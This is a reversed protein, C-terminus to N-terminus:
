PAPRGLAGGDKRAATSDKRTDDGTLVQDPLVLVNVAGEDTLYRAAAAQVQAATVRTLRGPAKLQRTIGDPNTQARDAVSLWGLNSKFVSDFDELLPARARLMLDDSVPARRLAALTDNIAARAIPVDQPAVSLQIMFTGYGKWIRSPMSSVSPSYVKGLRQRLADMLQIRMLHHLMNLVQKEDPDSDDRTAWTIHILAKDAPGAHYLTRLARNSTFSRSRQDAYPRFDAERMPLAGLTGAVLRIAEAEDVDGVIAVEIAGHALRDSIDARLREFTLARFAEVPALSFRPDGDSLIAGLRAGLVGEPTARIRQFHANTSQRYLEVAEGRWGPDTIQATMVQLQLGIDGSRVQARSVFTEDEARLGLAVPHGALLSELEDRSHRGLGASPLASVLEVALPNKQTALMQGGDVNMEVLASGRTLDTHKINLRVGNAFRVMRIGLEAERRDEVVRGPTGFQTYAFAAPPPGAVVPRPAPLAAALAETVAPRLQAEVGPPATRGQFLIVPNDLPLAEAKLAALVTEPTITARQTALWDRLARPNAPLFDGEAVALATRVLAEHSRTDAGTAAAEVRGNLIALQEAVEAPAFGQELARRLETIAAQTASRWRGTIADVDLMTTRWAHLNDTTRYAADRFPADPQRAVHLLRRNIIGYGIARLLNRHRTALTDPEDQIPGTRLLTVSETLSPNLQVSVRGGDAPDIPGAKMRPPAPRAAWSAFRQRIMAEIAAPDVDGVVVLTAKAPVYHRRYFARLREATAANLTEDTGIPWRTNLRAQPYFFASAAVSARYGDSNRDRKEALVVGRENDVATPLFSLESATERMLMLATDVLGAANKPLDLHFTTNEFNTFANTDAGFALGHRELLPIMEGRGVHTSGQFAMHEIFHAYGQEGEAEDLSGVDMRLRLVVQGQPTANHRIIYRMGNPLRGFTWGPDLPIDSDPLRWTPAAPVPATPRYPAPRPPLPKAHPALHAASHARPAVALADGM